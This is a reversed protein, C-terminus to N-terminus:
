SQKAAPSASVQQMVSLSDWHNWVEAVKGGRFRLIYIGHAVVRRGSAPLGMLEEGSHTGSGAWRVVVTDGEAIVDEVTDQIDPIARRFGALFPEYARRDMSAPLGPLYEHVAVDPALLEDFLATNGEQTHGLVFRRALAKNAEMTM